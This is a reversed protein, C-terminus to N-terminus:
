KVFKLQMIELGLREAEAKERQAGPSDEWGAILAIHSCTGLAELDRLMFDEYTADPKFNLLLEGLKVPNVVEFGAGRYHQEAREFNRTYEERPLGTIPGSLYVRTM